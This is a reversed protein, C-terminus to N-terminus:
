CVNPFSPRKSTVPSVSIFAALIRSEFQECPLPREAHPFLCQMECMGYHLICSSGLTLLTEQLVQSLKVPFTSSSKLSSTRLHLSLTLPELYLSRCAGPLSCPTPPAPPFELTHTSYQSHLTDRCRWSHAQFSLWAQDHSGKNAKSLCKAQM